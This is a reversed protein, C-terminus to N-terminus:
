IKNIIIIAKNIQKAYDLAMKTGSNTIKGKNNKSLFKQKYYFVCIDADDIMLKNREIYLNKDDFDFQKITDYIKVNIGKTKNAEIFKAYQIKEDLTFAIERACLYGVRKIDTYKNQFDSIMTYCLDNFESNSGFLFTKCNSNIMENFLISLENQLYRRDEKDVERHGIVACKKNM